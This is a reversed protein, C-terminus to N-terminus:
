GERREAEPVVSLGGCEVVRREPLVDHVDAAVAPGALRPAYQRRAHRRRAAGADDAEDTAADGGVQAIPLAVQRGALRARDDEAGVRAVRWARVDVRVRPRRVGRGIRDGRAETRM